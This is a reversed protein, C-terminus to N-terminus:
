GFGNPLSFAPDVAAGPVFCPNVARVVAGDARCRQRFTMRLIVFGPLPPMNQPHQEQRLKSIPETPSAVFIGRRHRKFLL